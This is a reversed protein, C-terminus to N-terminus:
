KKNVYLVLGIVVALWLWAPIRQLLNQEEEAYSEEYEGNPLYTKWTETCTATNGSRDTAVVTTTWDGIYPTDTSLLTLTRSADTYTMDSGTQPRDITIATSVLSLADSSSWTLEQIGKYAPKSHKKSLDCTPDTSDFTINGASYTSNLTTDNYVNCSVNYIMADTLASISVSKTFILQGASTNLIETLYTTAAGGSANYYCTVNTMNNEGNDQATVTVTMTGTYNGYDVPSSMSTTALVVPMMAMLMITAILLNTKKM